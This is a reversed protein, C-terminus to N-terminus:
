ADLARLMEPITSFKERLKGRLKGREREALDIRKWDEWLVPRLGRQITSEQIAKWGRVDGFDTGLLDGNLFPRKTERDEVIKDATMFADDMTNAIVGNPGRKVWGACYMGPVHQDSAGVEAVTIRGGRNPIIGRRTDFGIKLDGFGPLPESKYGISRFALSTNVSLTHQTPTVTAREDFSRNNEYDTFSTRRFTIKALQDSGGDAPLLEEPSLLFRLSWRKQADQNALKSHKRLLDAMRKKPRPLISTSEPLLNGPDMGEFSTSPLNM